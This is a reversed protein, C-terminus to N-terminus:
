VKEKCNVQVECYVSVISDLIVISELVVKQEESIMKKSIEEVQEKKKGKAKSVATDISKDKDVVKIITDVTDKYVEQAIDRQEDKQKLDQTLDSIVTDKHEIEQKLTPIDKSGFWGGITDGIATFKAGMVLSLIIGLLMMLFSKSYFVKKFLEFLVTSALLM